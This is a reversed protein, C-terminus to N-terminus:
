EGAVKKEVKAIMNEMMKHLRDRFVGKFILQDMLLALMLFYFVYRYESVFKTVDNKIEGFM